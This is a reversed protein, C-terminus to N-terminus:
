VPWWQWAVSRTRINITAQRLFMTMGCLWAIGSGIGTCVCWAATRVLRDGGGHRVAVRVAVLNSTSLTSRTRMDDADDDTRQSDTTPV